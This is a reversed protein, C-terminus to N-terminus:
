RARRAGPRGISRARGAAGEGAALADLLKTMSPPRRPGRLLRRQDAGDARQRLRGPVRGRDLTFLGDPTTEGLGIGLKRECAKVVDDSGRLWCPTTTCVQVFYKGVPTLNFMTYFTAVEYVRIRRCTSCAPSTTWRRARCGTATRASRWTSCRCCRARSAARRTSPSSRDAGAEPERAHLRLDGPQEVAPRRCASMPRDRRVRHRHSGIIAVVDALM